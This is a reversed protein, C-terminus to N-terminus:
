RGRRNLPGCKTFALPCNKRSTTLGANGLYKRILKKAKTRVESTFFRPPRESGGAPGRIGGELTVVISRDHLVRDSRLRIVSLHASAVLYFRYVNERFVKMKEEGGSAAQLALPCILRQLGQAVDVAGKFKIVM